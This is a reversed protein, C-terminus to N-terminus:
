WLLDSCWRGVLSEEHPTPTQEKPKTPRTPRMFDPQFCQSPLDPALHIILPIM